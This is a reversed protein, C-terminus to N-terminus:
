ELSVGKLVPCEFNCRWTVVAVDTHQMFVRHQQLTRPWRCYNKFLDPPLPNLLFTHDQDTTKVTPECQWWQSCICTIRLDLHQLQHQPRTDTGAAPIHTHGVASGRVSGWPLLGRFDATYTPRSFRGMDNLGTKCEIFLLHVKTFLSPKRLMHIHGTRAMRCAQNKQFEWHSSSTFSGVVKKEESAAGHKSTLVAAM